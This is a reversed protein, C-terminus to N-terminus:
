EENDSMMCTISMCYVGDMNPWPEPILEQACDWLDGKFHEPILEEPPDLHCIVWTWVVMGFFVGLADSFSCRLSSSIFWNSKQCMARKKQSEQHKQRWTLRVFAAIMELKTGLAVMQLDAGQAEAACRQWASGSRHTAAAALSRLWHWAFSGRGQSNNVWHVWPAHRHISLYPFIMPIDRSYLWSIHSISTKTIQSFWRVKPPNELCDKIVMCCKIPNQGWIASTKQMRPTVAM